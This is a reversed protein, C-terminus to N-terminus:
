VFLGINELLRNNYGNIVKHMLARRTDENCFFMEAVPKDSGIADSDLFYKHTSSHKEFTETTLKDLLVANKM